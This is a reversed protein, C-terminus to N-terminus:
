HLRDLYVLLSSGQLTKQEKRFYGKAENVFNKLQEALVRMALIPVVPLVLYPAEVEVISSKISLSM